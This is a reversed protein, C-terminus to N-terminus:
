RGHAKEIGSRQLRKEPPMNVDQEESIDAILSGDHEM